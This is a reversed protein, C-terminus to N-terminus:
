CIDNKNIMAANKSQEEKEESKQKKEVEERLHEYKPIDLESDDLITYKMKDTM